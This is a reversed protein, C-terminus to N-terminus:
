EETADMGNHITNILHCHVESDKGQEQVQHYYQALTHGAPQKKEFEPFAEEQFTLATVKYGCQLLYAMVVSNLHKRNGFLVDGRNLRSFADVCKEDGVGNEQKPSSSFEAQMEPSIADEASTAYM